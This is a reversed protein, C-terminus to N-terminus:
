SNTHLAHPWLKSVRTCPASRTAQGLQSLASRSFTNDANEKEAAVFGPPPGPPEQLPGQPGAPQLQSSELEARPKIM